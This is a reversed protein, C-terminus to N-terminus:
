ACFAQAVPPIAPARREMGLRRALRGSRRAGGRAPPQPGCLAQAPDAGAEDGLARYARQFAPLALRMLESSGLLELDGELDSLTSQLVAHRAQRLAILKSQAAELLASAAVNYAVLGAATASVLTLGAIVVPYFTSIRM